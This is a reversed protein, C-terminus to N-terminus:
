MNTKKVTIDKFTPITYKKGNRMNIVIWLIPFASLSPVFSYIFIFLFIFSKAQTLHRKRLNKKVTHVNWYLGTKLTSRNFDDFLNINLVITINKGGM